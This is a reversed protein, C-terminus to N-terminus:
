FGIFATVNKLFGCANGFEAVFLRFRLAPESLCLVIDQAQRIYYGLQFATNFRQSLLRFLSRLEYLKRVFLFRQFYSNPHVLKILQPCAKVLQAFLHEDVSGFVVVGFRIDVAKFFFVANNVLVNRRSIDAYLVEVVSNKFLLAGVRSDMRVDGNEFVIDLVASLSDLIQFLLHFAGLEGVALVAAKCLFLQFLYLAYLRINEGSVPFIGIRLTFKGFSHSLLVAKFLLERTM